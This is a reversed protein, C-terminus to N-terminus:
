GVIRQWLNIFAERFNLVDRFTVLVVLIMLLIFGINHIIAEVERRVPSGKIREIILFLV